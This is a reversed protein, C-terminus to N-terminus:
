RKVFQNGRRAGRRGYKKREKVRSDVTLFGEKRLIPKIDGDSAVLARAIGLRVADAQACLGGGLVNVDFDYNIALGVLEVPMRVASRTVETDFYHDFNRGNVSVLGTGGRRMWVRAVASKRRGVGHAIPTKNVSAKAVKIRPAAVTKTKAAAAPKAPSAKAKPLAKTSAKAAKMIISCGTNSFIDYM